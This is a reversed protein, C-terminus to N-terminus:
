AQVSLLKWRFTYRGTVYVAITARAESNYTVVDCTFRNYTFTSGKESAGRCKASDLAVRVKLGPCGNDDPYLQCYPIKVKAKVTREARAESWYWKKKARAATSAPTSLAGVLLLAALAALYRNV